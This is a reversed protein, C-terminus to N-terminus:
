RQTTSKDVSNDPGVAPVPAGPASVAAPSPPPFRWPRTARAVQPPAPLRPVGAPYPERESGAPDDRHAASM